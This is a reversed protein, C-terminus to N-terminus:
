QINEGSIFNRKLVKKSVIELSKSLDIRYFCSFASITQILIELQENREKSSKEPNDYGRIGQKEKLDIHNLRGIASILYKHIINLNINVSNLVPTGVYVSLTEFVNNMNSSTVNFKSFINLIITELNVKKFSCYNMIYILMDCVADERESNTKIVDFKHIGLEVDILEGLEEIIGQLNEPAKSQPFNQNAWIFLSKQLTSINM